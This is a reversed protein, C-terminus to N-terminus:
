RSDAARAESFAPKGEMAPLNLNKVTAIKVGLTQQKLNTIIGGPTELANKLTGPSGIAAITFPAAVAKFNVYITPGVCRIPTYGTIRIWPGDAGKIAIAEAKASLLEHVTQQLDFDHVIGPLFAGGGNAAAQPNDTLTITVGSGQVPTLGAVLRLDQMQTALQQAVTRPVREKMEQNLTRLKTEYQQKEARDKRAQEQMEALRATANQIGKKELAQNIHAQEVARLQMAMLGGFLFCIGTLSWILPRRTTQAPVSSSVPSVVPSAAPRPALSSM